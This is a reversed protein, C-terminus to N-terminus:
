KGGRPPPLRTIRGSQHPFRISVSTGKGPSSEMALTGGMAETTQGVIYLGLGSGQIRGIRQSAVDAQHFPKFLNRLAEEAIGKGTDRVYIETWGPIERAGLLVKGGSRTFKLANSVLNNLVHELREPDVHLPRLGEAAEYALEVKKQSALLGFLAHVNRLIPELASPAPHYEMRGAKMRAADLVNSVFLNLRAANDEILALMRRHREGLADRADGHLMEGALMKIAAMPNRLEHSVHSIFEDKLEDLALLRQAMVNIEQALSGLEDRRDAISTRTDLRGSGIARSAQTLQRIPRSLSWALAISLLMAFPFTFAAVMAPRRLKASMRARLEEDLKRQDYALLALATRRGNHLVPGYWKLRVGELRSTIGPGLAGLDDLEPWRRGIWRADSHVQVLGRPDLCAAYLITPERRLVEMFQLGFIASSAADVIRCVSALKEAADRQRARQEGLLTRREVVFTAAGLLLLLFCAYGIFALAFRTRLRM